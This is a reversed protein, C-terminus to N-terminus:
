PASAGTSGRPLSRSRFAGSAPARSGQEAAAAGLDHDADSGIRARHTTTPMVPEMPYNRKM